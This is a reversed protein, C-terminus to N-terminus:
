VEAEVVETAVEFEAYFKEKAEDSLYGYRETNEILTIAYDFSYEGSRVCNIFARIVREERKSM